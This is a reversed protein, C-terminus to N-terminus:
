ADTEGGDGLAGDLTAYGGAQQQARRGARVAQTAIVVDMACCGLSGFLWPLADVMAQGVDERTGVRLLVSTGYLTNALVATGFMLPSLGESSAGAAGAEARRATRINKVLQSVRSSLYFVASLWALAAGARLQSVPPHDSSCSPPQSLLARRALSAAGAAGEGLATWAAGGLLTAGGALKLAAHSAKPEPLLAQQLAAGYDEDGDLGSEATLPALRLRRRARLAFFSAQSIM